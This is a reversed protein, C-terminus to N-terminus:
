PESLVPPIFQGPPEALSPLSIPSQAALPSRRPETALRRRLLQPLTEPAEAVTGERGKGADACGPVERLAPFSRIVYLSLWM